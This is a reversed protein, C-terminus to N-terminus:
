RIYAAFVASQQRLNHEEYWAYANDAIDQISRSNEEMLNPVLYHQGAKVSDLSCSTTSANIPLIRHSCYASFIGSKALFEPNYDLFGAVSNLLCLSVEEPSQYGLQEVPFSIHDSLNLNIPAGIDIIKEIKLYDCAKKLSFASESYARMRKSRGGFVVLHKKRSDLSPPDDPEGVNSFVPLTKINRHKEGSLRQLTSASVERNSLLDDSLRALQAAIYKQIPSLWFSSTTPSGSSAYIEHFMTMLRSSNFQQEQWRELGSVLWFPCGRKAYGYGVYHLLITTDPQVLLAEVMADASRLKLPIVSFGDLGDRHSFSDDCVIFKTEIGFDHRLQKALSVSYDGLGNVKPPLTPVVQIVNM